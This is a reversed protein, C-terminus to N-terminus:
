AADWLDPDSAGDFRIMEARALAQYGTDLLARAPTHAARLRDVTASDVPQGAAAADAEARWGLWGLRHTSFAGGHRNVRELGAAGLRRAADVDGRLLALEAAAGYAPEVIQPESSIDALPILEDLMAQAACLDGRASDLEARAHMAWLRPNGEAAMAQASF